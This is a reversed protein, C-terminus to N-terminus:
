FVMLSSIEFKLGISDIVFIKVPLELEDVVLEGVVLEDVVLEGVVLEGVVLEGVVLEGIVYSVSDKDV